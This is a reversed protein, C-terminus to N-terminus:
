LPNKTHILLAIIKWMNTRIWNQATAGLVRELSTDIESKLNVSINGGAGIEDVMMADNIVTNQKLKMTENSLIM